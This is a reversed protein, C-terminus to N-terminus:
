CGTGMITDGYFFFNMPCSNTDFVGPDFFSHTGFFIINAM